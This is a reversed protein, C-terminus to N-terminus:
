HIIGDKEKNMQKNFNDKDESKSRRDEQIKSEEKVSEDPLIDETLTV